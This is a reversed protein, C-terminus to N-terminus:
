HLAGDRGSRPSCFPMQQENSIVQTTKFVQSFLMIMKDLTMDQVRQRVKEYYSLDVVEGLSLVKLRPYSIVLSSLAEVIQLQGKHAFFASTCLFLFDNNSLRYYRRIRSRANKYTNEDSATRLEEIDIGNPIVTTLKPDLGLKVDSYKAANGSVAIYKRTFHDLRQYNEIVDPTLWVYSNHITQVVPIRQEAAIELGFTSYHANV